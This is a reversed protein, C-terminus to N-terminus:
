RQIRYKFETHASMRCWQRQKKQWIPRLELLNLMEVQLLRLEGPFEGQFEVATALEGIMVGGDAVKQREGFGLFPVTM